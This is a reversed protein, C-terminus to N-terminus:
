SRRPPSRFGTQVIPAPLAKLVARFRLLTKGIRRGFRACPVASFSGGADPSRHLVPEKARGTRSCSYGTRGQGSSKEVRGSIRSNRYLFQHPVHPLFPRALSQLTLIHLQSLSPDWFESPYISALREATAIHVGADPARRVPMRTPQTHSRRPIMPPAPINRRWSMLHSREYSLKDPM